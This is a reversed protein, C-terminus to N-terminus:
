ADKVSPFLDITKEVWLGLEDQFVWGISTVSLALVILLITVNLSFGIAMINLQPLTRGILATVLNALLLTIAAPGAARLGVSMSHGILEYLQRLWTEDITVGGAPYHTFSDICVGVIVRHGGLVLFLLMAIWTFLQSIVTTSEQTTPDAAQAVDLSALTSVIQGGIQLTSVVIAASTGFLLGLLLEKVLGITLDFLSSPLPTSFELIIPTLVFSVMLVVLTKIRMPITTGQLPPMLVLLPGLRSLVCFFTWMPGNLLSAVSQLSDM